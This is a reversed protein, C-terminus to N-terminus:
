TLYYIPPKVGFKFDNFPGYGIQLFRDPRIFKLGQRIFGVLVTSLLFYKLFTIFKQIFTMGRPKQAITYGIYTASLLIGLYLFGYKIGVFIDYPTKGKYMSIISGFLLIVILTIRPWKWIRLYSKINRIYM